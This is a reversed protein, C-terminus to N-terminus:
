SSATTGCDRTTTACRSRTTSTGRATRLGPGGAHRRDAGTGEGDVRVSVTGAGAVSVTIVDDHRALISATDDQEVGDELNPPINNLDSDDRECDPGNSSAYKPTQDDNEARSDLVRVFAQYYVSPGTTQGTRDTLAMQVTITSNARGSRVTAEVCGGDSETVLASEVTILLTNYAEPDNSVYLTNDFFTHQPSVQGDALYATDM